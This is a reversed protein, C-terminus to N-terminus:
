ETYYVPLKGALKKTKKVDTQLISRKSKALQAITDDGAQWFM